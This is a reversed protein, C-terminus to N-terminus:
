AGTETIVITTTALVPALGTRDYSVTLTTTGTAAGAEATNSNWILGSIEPSFSGTTLTADVLALMQDYFRYVQTLGTGITMSPVIDTTVGTCIRMSNVVQGVIFNTGTVGIGGADPHTAYVVETNGSYISTILGTRLGVTAVNTNTSYYSCETTVDVGHNNLVRTQYTYASPGALYVPYLAFTIATTNSDFISPIITYQTAAWKDGNKDSFHLTEPPIVSVLTIGSDAWQERSTFGNNYLVKNIWKKFKM